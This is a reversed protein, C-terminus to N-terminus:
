MAATALLDHRFLISLRHVRLLLSCGAAPLLQEGLIQCKTSIQLWNNNRSRFGTIIEPRLLLLCIHSLRSRLDRTLGVTDQLRASAARVASRAPTFLAGHRKSALRWM